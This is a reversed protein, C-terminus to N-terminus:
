NFLLESVTVLKYGRNQLEPITENLIKTLSKNKGVGEIFDHFDIISGNRVHSLVNKEAKKVGPKEWDKSNDDWLIIKKNLKKLVSLLNYSLVGGPPRFLNTKIGLKDLEEDCKQIEEKMFKRSKFLMRKHSFTHNGIEHGEKKIKEIIKGRGKIREGWIFFTGKAHHKMLVKLAERTEKSPGDDFTLAIVKKNRKGHFYIQKKHKAFFGRKVLWRM